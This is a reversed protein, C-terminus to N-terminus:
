IKERQHGAPRRDEKQGAVIIEEHTDIAKLLVPAIAIWIIILVYGSTM